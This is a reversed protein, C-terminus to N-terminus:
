LIEILPAGKKRERIEGIPWATEKMEKLRELLPDAVEKAVVLMLGIGCNFVRQMEEERVRGWKKIMEFIPPRPWSDLHLVARCDDPFLRPLNEM